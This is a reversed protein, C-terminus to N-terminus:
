KTESFPNDSVTELSGNNQSSKRWNFWSNSRSRPLSQSDVSKEDPKIFDFDSDTSLSNTSSSKSGLESDGNELGNSKRTKNVNLPETGFPKVGTAVSSTEGSVSGIEPISLSSAKPTESSLSRNSKPLDSRKLSGQIAAAGMKFATGLLSAKGSNSGQPESNEFFNSLPNSVGSSPENISNNNGAIFSPPNKFKSFFSDIFSGKGVGGGLTEEKVALEPEAARYPRVDSNVLYHAAYEKVYYLLQTLYEVGLARLKKYIFWAYDGIETEHEHLFPQVYTLYIQSAGQTQPLVLWLIFFLRFLQFFPLFNVLFGFSSELTFQLSYVVWYM